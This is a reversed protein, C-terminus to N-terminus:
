KPRPASHYDKKRQLQYQRVAKEHEALTASFYHHGDGMGVFFLADGSLPHLAAHIAERGPLAIPTPPLGHRTYTNYPTDERLHKRTINGKYTDGLGYIVTPDTQLRMGMNLRRVFVGAIASREDPVGTEKEIISAMILAEYPNKYPLNGDRQAWEEQLVQQMREYAQRLIDADSIGATYFYSDPFFLGELHPEQIGLQQRIQQDSLGALKKELKEANWLAQLGERFTRGEVLTVQHQIVDGRNMKELLALATMGKHRKYEGAKILTKNTLRAYVVLCRSCDMIGEKALSRSVQGLSSGIRVERIMEEQPLHLPKHLYYFIAALASGTVLMFFLLFIKLAARDRMSKKM